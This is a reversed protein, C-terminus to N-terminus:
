KPKKRLTELRKHANDRSLNKFGPKRHHDAVSETARAAMHPLKANNLWGSELVPVGGFKTECVTAGRGRVPIADAPRSLHITDRRTAGLM